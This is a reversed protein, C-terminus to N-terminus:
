DSKEKLLTIVHRKRINHCYVVEAVECAKIVNEEINTDVSLDNIWRTSTIDVVFGNLVDYRAQLFVLGDQKTAPIRFTFLPKIPNQAWSFAAPLHWYGYVWKDKITEFDILNFPMM